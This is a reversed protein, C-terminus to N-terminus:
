VSLKVEEFNSHYMSIIVGAFIWNVYCNVFILWASINNSKNVCSISVFM